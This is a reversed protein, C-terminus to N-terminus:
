MSVLFDTGDVFFTTRVSRGGRDVREFLLQGILEGCLNVLRSPLRKRQSIWCFVVSSFKNFTQRFQLRRNRKGVSLSIEAIVFMNILALVVFLLM